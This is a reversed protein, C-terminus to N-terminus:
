AGSATSMQSWYLAPVVLQIEESLPLRMTLHKEMTMRGRDCTVGVSRMSLRKAKEYGAQGLRVAPKAWGLGMGFRCLPAPTIARRSRALYPNSWHLTRSEPSARLSNRGKFGASMNRTVPHNRSYVDVCFWWQHQVM